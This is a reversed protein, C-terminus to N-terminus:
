RARRRKVVPAVGLRFGLARVVRLFTSLDPNAGASLGASKVLKRKGKARAVDGLAAVVVAVDGVELAATLYTAMEARTRLQRAADWSRTRPPTM